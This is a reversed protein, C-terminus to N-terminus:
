KVGRAEHHISNTDVMVRHGEDTVIIVPKSYSTIVVSTVAIGTKKELADRLLVVFEGLDLNVAANM